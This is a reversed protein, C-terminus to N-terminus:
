WFTPPDLQSRGETSFLYSQSQMNMNVNVRIIFKFQLNNYKTWIKFVAPKSSGEGDGTSILSLAFSEKKKFKMNHQHFLIYVYKKWIRTSTSM